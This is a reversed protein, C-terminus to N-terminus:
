RVIIETEHPSGLNSRSLGTAKGSEPTVRNAIVHVHPHGDRSVILAAVLESVREVAEGIGLRM